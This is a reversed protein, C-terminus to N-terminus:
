HIAPAEPLAMRWPSCIAEALQASSVEGARAGALLKEDSPLTLGNYALADRLRDVAAPLGLRARHEEFGIAVSLCIMGRWVLAAPQAEV